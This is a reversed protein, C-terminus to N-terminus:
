ECLALAAIRVHAIFDIEVRSRGLHHGTAEDLARAIEGRRTRERQVLGRLDGKAGPARVTREGGEHAVPETAHEDEGRGRHDAVGVSKGGGGASGARGDFDNGIERGLRGATEAFLQAHAGAAKRRVEHEGDAAAAHEIDRFEHRGQM